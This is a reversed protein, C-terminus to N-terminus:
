GRGENCMKIRRCEEGERQKQPMAVDRRTGKYQGCDSGGFWVASDVGGL